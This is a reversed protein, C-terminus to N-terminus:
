DLVILIKYMKNGPKVNNPRITAPAAKTQLHTQRRHRLQRTAVDAEISHQLLLLIVPTITELKRM